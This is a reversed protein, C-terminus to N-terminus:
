FGLLALVPFVVFMGIWFLSLALQKWVAGRFRDPEVARYITTGAGYPSSSIRGFRSARILQSCPGAILWIVVAVGFLGLLGDGLLGLIHKM